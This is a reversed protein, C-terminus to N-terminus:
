PKVREALLALQRNREADMEAETMRPRVDAAPGLEHRAEPPAAEVHAAALMQRRVDPNAMAPAVTPAVYTGAAIQERTRRQWAIQEAASELEAPPPPMPTEELRRARIRHIGGIIHGPEVYRSKGPEMPASVIAAVADKADAYPYGGLILGWAQPTYEDLVQSPCCAKVLRCLQLVEAANM